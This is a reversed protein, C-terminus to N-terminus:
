PLPIVRVVIRRERRIEGIESLQLYFKGEPLWELWVLLEHADKRGGRSRMDGGGIM